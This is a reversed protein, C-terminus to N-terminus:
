PKKGGSKRGGIDVGDDKPSDQGVSAAIPTPTENRNPKSNANAKSKNGGCGCGCDEHKMETDLFLDIDSESVGKVNNKIWDKKQAKTKKCFDIASEGAFQYNFVNLVKIQNKM